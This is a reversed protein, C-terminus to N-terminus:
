FGFSVEMVVGNFGPGMAANVSDVVGTNGGFSHYQEQVYELKTLISRTLWYGGGVQIRDVWGNTDVGHVSGAFAYSYQAALYLAPTIHYVVNSSGYLWRESPSGPAQGNANTDQTWGVYSYSEWPWSEYTIDGQVATVDNGAQPTIQGPNDGGGFVAAYVGGSRQASFLHTTETGSPGNGSEGMDEHYVSASLRLDKTPYGWIKAHISPQAGYDFHMTTTGSGGGILWYIPGKVSYVEAGIEETNPDVLPNGILPNNQVWANNSRHYNNDGFDIDFAGVKANIYDFLQNPLSNPGFGPIQKFVMYGEHGYMTNPHPASAVYFDAFMDFKGPITAYLSLNAYPNQFGPNLGSKSGANFQQIAQFRGVTWFGMYFKMDQWQAVQMHMDPRMHDPNEKSFPSFYDDKAPPAFLNGITQTINNNWGNAAQTSAAIGQSQAMAEAYVKKAAEYAAKQETSGVQSQATKLQAQQKKLEAQQKKISAEQKKLTAETSKITAVDQAVKALQQQVQQYKKQLNQYDAASPGAADAAYTMAVPSCAMAVALLVLQCGTHKRKM